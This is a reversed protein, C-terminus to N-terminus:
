LTRNIMQVKAGFANQCLRVKQFNDHKPHILTLTFVAGKNEQTSWAFHAFLEFKTWSCSKNPTLASFSSQQSIILTVYRQM